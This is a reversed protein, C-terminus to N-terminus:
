SRSKRNHGNAKGYIKSLVAKAAEPDLSTKQKQDQDFKLMFDALKFDGGGKKKAGMAQMVSLCISAARIDGRAEGFPDLNYHQMWEYLLAPPGEAAM